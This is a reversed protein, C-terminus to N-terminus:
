VKITVPFRDITALKLRIVNETLVDDLGAAPPVVLPPPLKLGFAETVTM